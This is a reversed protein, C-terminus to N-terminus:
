RSGTLLCFRCDNEAFQVSSRGPFHFQENVVATLVESGVSLSNTRCLSTRETLHATKNTTVGKVEPLFWRYPPM